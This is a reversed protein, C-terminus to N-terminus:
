DGKDEIPAVGVKETIVKNKIRDLRVYECMWKIMRTEAVM